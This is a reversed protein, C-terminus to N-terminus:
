LRRRWLARIQSRTPSVSAGTKQAVAQAVPRAVHGHFINDGLVLAAPDHGILGRRHSPRRLVRLVPSSPMIISIGLPAGDGLLQQFLPQDHPTTIVLIDRIGALMLVSLPYYIM